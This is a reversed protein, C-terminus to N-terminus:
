IAGSFSSANLIILMAENQKNMENKVSKCRSSFSTQYNRGVVEKLLELDLNGMDSLNLNLVKLAETLSM